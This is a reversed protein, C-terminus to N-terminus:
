RGPVIYQLRVDSPKFTGESNLHMIYPLVGQAKLWSGKTKLEKFWFPIALAFDTDSTLSFLYDIIYDHQCDFFLLTFYLGTGLPEEFSPTFYRDQIPPATPAYCFLLGSGSYGLFLSTDFQM